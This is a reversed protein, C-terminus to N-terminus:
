TLSLAFRLVLWINTEDLEEIRKDCIAFRKVVGPAEEDQYLVREMGRALKKLTYGIGIVYVYVSSDSPAPFSRSLTDIMEALAFTGFLSM